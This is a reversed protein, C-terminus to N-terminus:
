ISKKPQFPIRWGGGCSRGVFHTASVKRVVYDNNIILIIYLKYYITRNVTKCAIHPHLPNLPNNIYLDVTNYTFM